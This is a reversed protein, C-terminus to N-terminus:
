VNKQKRLIKALLIFIMALFIIMLIGILPGSVNQITNQFNGGSSDLSKVMSLISKPSHIKGEDTDKDIKNEILNQNCTVACEFIPISKQALIDKTKYIDPQHDTWPVCKKNLCRFRISQDYKANEEGLNTDISFSTMVFIPSFKVSKWDDEGYPPDREFTPFLGNEGVNHFYLSVTNVVPQGYTIFFTCNQKNVTFIDYDKYLASIKMPTSNSHEVCYLNMGTPIPRFLPNLAYFKNVVRWGHRFVNTDIKYDYVIENKENRRSNAAVIYGRYIGAREDVYQLIFYPVINPINENM